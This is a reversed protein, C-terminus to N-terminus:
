RKRGKAEVAESFHQDHKSSLDRIGFDFAGAIALARQRRAESDVCHSSQLLMDVGERILEAVPAERRAALDRLKRAQEENLQVQTRVM